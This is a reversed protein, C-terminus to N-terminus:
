VSLRAVLQMKSDLVIAEPLKLDTWLTMPDLGTKRSVFLTLVTGHTVVVLPRAAHDCLSKEFRAYAEDASEGGFPREAPNEFIRRISAEFDAHTGFTLGPRRQEVFGEDGTVELELCGAIIRATEEAKPEPSSVIAVPQFTVLREALRAAAARGGESLGWLTSSIDGVVRPLSHRVLILAIAM